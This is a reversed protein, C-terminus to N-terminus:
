APADAREFVQRALRLGDIALPFGGYLALTIMIEEIETRTVGHNLAGQLHIELEHQHSLAALASIVVFSRDRRSLQPRSWVDGFAWDLVLEGMFGEALISAELQERSLPLHGLLTGLVDLGDARRKAPDKPELPAPPTHRTDTGERGAVVASMVNMAAVGLAAGGYTSIQVITEDIEEISLGHNLGGNIHFRLETNREHAIQFSIVALSRDRRSLETRGWIAGFGWHHGLQGHAGRSGLSGSLDRAAQASGMLTSLVDLAREDHPSSQSM